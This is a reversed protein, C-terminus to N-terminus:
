ILDALDQVHSLGILELSTEDKLELAIKKPVYARKLGIRMAEKLRILSYSVNRIEGGLGAEGFFVSDKAVPKGSYSSVLAGLVGLDIATEQIRLGGAVNLYIDQDSLRFGGRRELVAVLLSLRNPDIGLATRRPMALNSTAALAQVEVLLPRTGEVTAAIVSGPATDPRESLFLESPNAVPQLGETSMEFVGLENTSGFRNKISRLLRFNQSSSGEFYLVVDVMHELVKPGAISGDKTVHGVIFTTMGRSKALGILQYACERLQSVSGPQSEIIGSYITQISDVILLGPCLKEIQSKTAELSTESLVQINDNSAGLRKARLSIQSPSEEGSVYLVKMSKSAFREAIQLLLTSKGIGPEGGILLASGPVLGGGLVNDLESIGSRIRNTLEEPIESLSLPKEQAEGIVRNKNKGTPVFTREEVLSNWASCDQCRGMWKSYSQGCQQCVFSTKEKM